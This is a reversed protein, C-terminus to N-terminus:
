TIRWNMNRRIQPGILFLTMAYPVGKPLELRHRETAVRFVMDGPALTRVAIPGGNGSQYQERLQGALVLSTNDWTHDHLENTPDDGTMIHFFVNGALAPEFTNVYWRFQYRPEYGPLFSIDPQRMLAPATCGGGVYKLAIERDADSIKSWDFM